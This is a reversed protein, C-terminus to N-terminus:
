ARSSVLLLVSSTTLLAPCIKFWVVRTRAGMLATLVALVLLAGATVRYTWDAATPGGGVATVTIILAAFSWMTVAEALWEQVLVRRNDASIEGFGAVVARTPIAHSVGWLGVLGAAIYALVEAM